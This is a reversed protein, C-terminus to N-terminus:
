VPMYEGASLDLCAGTVASFYDSSLAIVAKACESDTPIAGLPIAKEIEARLAAVTTGQLKAREVMGQEVTTGWMWGPFISNLRIHDGGLEKALQATAMRLAAKSVAYGGMTELPMRSVKTNINVISGGGGARMHPVTAQIMNMSGFLNVDLTRRWDDLDAEAALQYAGTTYASNILVDIRGFRTAVADVFARAQDRDSVDTTQRLVRADPTLALIDHELANLKEATRACIAITAGEQVALLALARGLGPGIGTIVAVKDRLMMGTVRMGAADHQAM